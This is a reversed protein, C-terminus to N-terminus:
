NDSHLNYMSAMITNLHFFDQKYEIAVHNKLLSDSCQM